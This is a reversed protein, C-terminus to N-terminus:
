SGADRRAASIRVGLHRVGERRREVVDVIARMESAGIRGDGAISQRPESAESSLADREDRPDIFMTLLDLAGGLRLLLTGLIVTIGDTIGVALEPFAPADAQIAKDAGGVFAMQLKNMLKVRPDFGGTIHDASALCTPVADATLFEFVIGGVRHIGLARNM